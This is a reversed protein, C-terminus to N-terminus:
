RIAVDDSSYRAMAVPLMCLVKTSNPGTTKPTILASLSVLLCVFLSVSVNNMIMSRMGGPLLTILLCTFLLTYKDIAEAM